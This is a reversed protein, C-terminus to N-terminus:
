SLVEECILFVRRGRDDDPEISVIEYDADQHRLRGGLAFDSRSRVMASIRRLRRTRDGTRAAITSLQEVAAFVTAAPAYAVSAGGAEDATATRALLVIQFRLGAIM